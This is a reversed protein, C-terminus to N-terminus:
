FSASVGLVVVGKGMYKDYANTYLDRDANTDYYTLSVTVNDFDRSLGVSWDTYSGDDLNRIKQYGVHANLNLDWVGTPLALGLDYYQSNRSDETGFLDTLSHSYKFSVPGYGLGIYAETTNPKNFGDPYRGPYYYQLLGVDLTFDEAITHVYGAYFDMEVNSSIESDADSLWSISSNWNGIYFGSKHTLDFGGQIAPKGNSQMLGRFRYDSVVGINASFTWEPETALASTTQAQVAPLTSLLAIAVAPLALKM